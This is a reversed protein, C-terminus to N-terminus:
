SCLRCEEDAMAPGTACDGDMEREPFLLGHGHGARAHGEATAARRFYATIFVRVTSSRPRGSGALKARRQDLVAIIDHVTMGEIRAIEQLAKDLAPELRLSTRRGNVKINRCPVPKTPCPENPRPM